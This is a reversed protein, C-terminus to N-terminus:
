ATANTAGSFSTRATKVLQRAQKSSWGEDAEADLRAYSSVCTLPGPALKTEDCIFAQLLDEAEDRNLRRRHVLHSRLAPLYRRLFEELAASQRGQDGGALAVLSWQTQPFPGFTHPVEATM